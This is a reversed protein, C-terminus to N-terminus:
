SSHEHKNDGMQYAAAVWENVQQETIGLFQAETLLGKLKDAVEAVVAPNVMTETPQNVFTGRGKVTYVAKQSELLQYTKSVTNPNLHMEAAMARISPLKDGPQLIGQVIQQKIQMVLQEYYPAGNTAFAM